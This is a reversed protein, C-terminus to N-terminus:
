HQPRARRGRIVNGAIVAVALVVALAAGGIVMLETTGLGSDTSEESSLLQLEYDGPLPGEAPSDLGPTQQTRHVEFMQEGADNTVWEGWAPTVGDLLVKHANNVTDFGVDTIQRVVFPQYVADSYRVQVPVNDITVPPRPPPPAAQGPGPVYGGGLVNGVAVNTAQTAAGVTNLVIATFSYAGAQAIQTVASALPQIILTQPIGAVDIVVQLPNPYPNYFTPQYFNDYQVWEQNWQQVPSAVGELLNPDVQNPLTLDSDVLLSNLSAVEQEPLDEVVEEVPDSAFAAQVNEEEVEVVAPEQTTLM